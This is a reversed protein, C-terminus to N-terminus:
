RKDNTHKTRVEDVLKFFDSKSILGGNRDLSGPDFPRPESRDWAEVGAGDRDRSVPIGDVDWFTTDPSFGASRPDVAM